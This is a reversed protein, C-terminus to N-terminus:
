VFRGLACLARRDINVLLLFALERYQSEFLKGRDPFSHQLGRKFGVANFLEQVVVATHTTPSVVPSFM